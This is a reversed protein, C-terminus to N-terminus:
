YEYVPVRDEGPSIVAYAISGKGDYDARQVELARFTAANRAAVYDYRFPSVVFYDALTVVDHGGDTWWGEDKDPQIMAMIVSVADPDKALERRAQELYRGAPKWDQIRTVHETIM